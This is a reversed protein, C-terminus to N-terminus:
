LSILVNFNVIQLDSQFSGLLRMLLMDVLEDSLDLEQLRFDVLQLLQDVLLVLFDLAVDVLEIQLLSLQFIFDSVDQLVQFAQLVPEVLHLSGLLNLDFFQSVSISQLILLESFFGLLHVDVLFM